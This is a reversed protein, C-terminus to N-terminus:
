APSAISVGGTQGSDEVSKGLDDGFDDVRRLVVHKPMFKDESYRDLSLSSWVIYVPTHWYELTYKENHEPRNNEDIWVISRKDNDLIFDVYPQFVRDLTRAPGLRCVAHNRIAQEERMDYKFYYTQKVVNNLLIVKDHFDIPIQWPFGGICDGTKLMGVQTFLQQDQIGTIIATVPIGCEYLYGDVDCKNPCNLDRNGSDLDFCACRYSRFYKVRQGQRAIFDLHKNPHFEVKRMPM